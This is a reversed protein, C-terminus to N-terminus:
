LSGDYEVDEHSLIKCGGIAKAKVFTACIGESEEAFFLVDAISPGVALLGHSGLLIVNRDKGMYKYAQNALKKDGSKVFPATIIEDAGAVVIMETIAPVTIEACACVTAYPSHNHMVANVDERERYFILHTEMESSPKRKGDVVKGNVDVVVVDEATMENYEMSSPSIAVLGQERNFISINGSTGVTLGRNYMELCYKVVDEREKQLLM